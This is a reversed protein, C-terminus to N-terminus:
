ERAFLGGTSGAALGATLVPLMLMLALASLALCYRAGASARSALADACAYLAAALAGQWVFHVLAWGLAEVLASGM